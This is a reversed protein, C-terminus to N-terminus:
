FGALEAESDSSSDPAQKLDIYDGHKVFFKKFTVRREEIAEPTM